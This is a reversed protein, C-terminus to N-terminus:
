SKSQYSDVVMWDRAQEFIMGKFSFEINADKCKQFYVLCSQFEREEMTIRVTVNSKRDQFKIFSEQRPNRFQNAYEERAELIANAQHKTNTKSEVIYNVLKEKVIEEATKM